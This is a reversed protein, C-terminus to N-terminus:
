MRISPLSVYRNAVRVRAEVARAAISRAPRFGASMSRNMGWWALMRIM